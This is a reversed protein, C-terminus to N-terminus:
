HTLLFFRAPTENPVLLVRSDGDVQPEGALVPWPRPADPTVSAEVQVAGATMPWALQISEAGARSIRLPVLDPALSGVVVLDPSGNGGLGSIEYPKSGFLYLRFTAPGKLHQLGPVGALAVTWLTSGQAPATPVPGQNFSTANTSWTMGAAGTSQYFAQFGLQEISM